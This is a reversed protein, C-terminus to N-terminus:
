SLVVWGDLSVSPRGPTGQVIVRVTHTGRHVLHRTWVIGRGTARTSRLDVTAGPRGDVLVTIRGQTPGTPAVLGIDTATTTLTASASRVGSSEVVGGLAGPVAAPHWGASYRTSWQESGLRVLRRVTATSTNGAADTAVIARSVTTGPRQSVALGRSALPLVAKPSTSALRVLRPDAAAFRLQLPVQATVPAGRQLTVTPATSFTPATRDVLVTAAPSTISRGADVARVAVTHRGSRLGTATASRATAAATARTVGDVLVRYGNRPMRPTTAFTVTLSTSRHYSVGNVTRGSARVSSRLSTLPTSTEVVVRARGGSVGTVRITRGGATLM